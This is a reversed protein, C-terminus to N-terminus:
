LNYYNNYAHCLKQEYKTGLLGYIIIKITIAIMNMYKEQKRATRFIM